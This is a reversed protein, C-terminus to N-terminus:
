AANDLLPQQAESVQRPRRVRHCMQGVVTILWGVSVAVGAMAFMAQPLLMDLRLRYPRSSVAHACIAIHLRYMVLAQTLICELPWRLLCRRACVQASYHSYM